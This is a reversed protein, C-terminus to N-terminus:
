ATKLRKAKKMAANKKRLGGDQKAQVILGWVSPTIFTATYIGSVLGFLIPLAFEQLSPVPVVAIAGVVILSTVTTFLSRNLTDRVADNVIRRADLKLKKAKYPVVSERVRDMVVVANNISYTLITIVGAILNSSIQINFIIVGSLMVLIDCFLGVIMALGSFIDFRIVIYLLCAVIALGVALFAKSLMEGRATANILEAGANVESANPYKSKLADQVDKIIQNNVTIMKQTNEASSYDEGRVVNPYRIVMSNAGSEQVTNVSVGNNEITETLLIRNEDYNAGILNDGSMDITLVTGGKFDVGVNAFGNYKVGASTAFITGCVLAIFLISLPFLFWYYANQFIKFESTRLRVGTNKFFRTLKNPM